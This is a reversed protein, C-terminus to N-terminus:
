SGPKPLTGNHCVRVRKVRFRGSSMHRWSRVRRTPRGQSSLGAEFPHCQDSPSQVLSQMKQLAAPTGSQGNNGHASSLQDAHRTGAREELCGRSAGKGMVTDPPRDTPPGERDAQGNVEGQARLEVKLNAERYDAYADEGQDVGREPQFKDFSRAKLEAAYVAGRQDRRVARTSKKLTIGCRKFENGRVRQTSSWRERLEEEIRTLEKEEKGLNDIKARPAEL